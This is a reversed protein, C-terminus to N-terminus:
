FTNITGAFTKSLTEDAIKEVAQAVIDNACDTDVTITRLGAVGVQCYARAQIELSALVEAAGLESVLLTRDFSLNAVVDDETSAFAASSVLTAAVLATAIRIM